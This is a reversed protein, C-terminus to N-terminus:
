VFFTNRDVEKGDLLLRGEVLTVKNENDPIAKLEKMKKRIRNTEQAYVPHTDKKVYVKQWLEEKRKLLPANKVVKERSERNGMKVKLMRTMGTREKGLRSCEIVDRIEDSCDIISLIHQIKDEDTNLQDDDTIPEEPLGSIVLNTARENQDIMNLSRQINIAINTLVSTKEQTQLQETEILSVRKELNVTVKSKLDHLEKKLEDVDKQIPQVQKTVEENIMTNVTNYFEYRFWSKFISFSLEGVKSEDDITIPNTEENDNSDNDRKNACEECLKTTSCLPRTRSERSKCGICQNVM